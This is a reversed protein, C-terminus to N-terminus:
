LKLFILTDLHWSESDYPLFYHEWRSKMLGSVVRVGPVYHGVGLNYFYFWKSSKSTLNILCSKEYFRYGWNQFDGWTQLEQGNNKRIRPQGEWRGAQDAKPVVHSVPGSQRSGADSLSPNMIRAAGKGLKTSNNLRQAKSGKDAFHQFVPTSLWVIMVTIKLILKYLTAANCCFHSTDRNPPPPFWPCHFFEGLASYLLSNISYVAPSSYPLVSFLSLWSPPPPSPRYYNYPLTLLYPSM